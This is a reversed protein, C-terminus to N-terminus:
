AATWRRLSRALEHAKTTKVTGREAHHACYPGDDVRLECCVLMDAGEGGVPWKCGRSPRDMIPLPTSGPLPEFAGVKIEVRPPRPPPEVFTQANNIVRLVPPKVPRIPRTRHPTALKAPRSPTERGGLGRRHVVGIVANRSYAAGFEDALIRAVQAASLGSTWLVRLREVHEEPWRTTVIM